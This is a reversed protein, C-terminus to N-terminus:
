ARGDRRLSITVSDSHREFLSSLSHRGVLVTLTDGSGVTYGATVGSSTVYDTM